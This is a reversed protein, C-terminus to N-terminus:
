QYLSSLDWCRLWRILAGRPVASTCSCNAARMLLSWAAAQAGRVGRLDVAHYEMTAIGGRSSKFGPAGSSAHIRNGLARASQLTLLSLRRYLGLRQPLSTDYGFVPNTMVDDVSYSLYAAALSGDHVIGEGKLVGSQMGHALWQASFRPNLMSHKLGYLLWYLRAIRDSDAATLQRSVLPSDRALALDRRVNRIRWFEDRRPDQHFVLRSPVLHMGIRSTAALTPGSAVSDLSRVVIPIGPYERRAADVASAWEADPRLTHLVTSVPLADLVVIPDLRRLIPTLAGVSAYAAFRSLTAPLRRVEDRAYDLYQGTASVVYCNRVSPRTVLIRWAVGHVTLRGAYANANPACWAVGHEVLPAWLADADAAINM